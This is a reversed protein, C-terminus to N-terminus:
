GGLGEILPGLHAEYRRWRDISTTYIKQRVQLASATMVSQRRNHFELVAPDWDLDCFEIIRRSVSEQDVVLDEYQVELMPVPLVETWHAMLREYQRYYRGLTHLDNKYPHADRLDACFLSVCTDRANRRCHIIRTQPFMLAVLWLHLFNHPMKDVVRAAEPALQDIADRYREAADTITAADLTHWSAPLDGPSSGPQGDATAGRAPVSFSAGEFGGRLEDVLSLEGAGHCRGHGAIISEVLTTGSRPMGVVFVPQKSLVGYARRDVFFEGDFVSIKDAVEQEFAAIDFPGGTIQVRETNAAVFEVFAQDHHRSVAHIRGITFHLDVRERTTMTKQKLGELRALLDDSPAVKEATILGLHAFVSDPAIDLAARFNEAATEKEGLGMYVSGLSSYVAHNRPDNKLALRYSTLAQKSMGLEHFANGACRLVESNTPEIKLARNLLVLAEKPKGRLRLFEGYQQLVPISEPALELSRNYSTLAGQLMGLSSEVNALSLLFTVSGPDAATARRLHTLAQQNQGCQYLMSGLLHNAEGADPQASLAKRCWRQAEALDGHQYSAVARRYLRDQAPVKQRSPTLTRPAM